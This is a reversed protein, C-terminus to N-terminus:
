AQTVPTYRTSVVEAASKQTTTPPDTSYQIANPIEIMTMIGLFTQGWEDWAHPDFGALPQGAAHAAEIKAPIDNAPTNWAASLDRVQALLNRLDPMIKYIVKRAIEEEASLGPADYNNFPFGNM